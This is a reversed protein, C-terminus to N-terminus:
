GLFRLSLRISLEQGDTGFTCYDPAGVADIVSGM